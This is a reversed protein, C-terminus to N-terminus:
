QLPHPFTWFLYESFCHILEYQSFLPLFTRMIRTGM